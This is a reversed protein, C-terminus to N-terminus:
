PCGLMTLLVAGVYRSCLMNTSLLRLSALLTSAADTLISWVLRAPHSLLLLLLKGPCLLVSPSCAITKREMKSHAFASDINAPVPAVIVSMLGLQKKAGLPWM